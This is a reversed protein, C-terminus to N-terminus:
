FAGRTSAFEPIQGEGWFSVQFSSIARVPSGRQRRPGRRKCCSRLERERGPVPERRRGPEPARGPERRMRQRRRQKWRKRLLSTPWQRRLKRKRQKKRRTSTFLNRRLDCPRGRAAKTMARGRAAKTM